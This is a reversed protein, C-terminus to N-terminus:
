NPKKLDMIVGSYTKGDQTITFKSLDDSDLNVQMKYKSLTINFNDIDQGILAGDNSKQSKILYNVASNVLGRQFEKSDLEGFTKDDIQRNYVKYHKYYTFKEKMFGLLKNEEQHLKEHFLTTKLNKYDDIEASFSGSKPSISLNVKNGIPNTHAVSGEDEEVGVSGTVGVMSGYYSAINSITLNYTSPNLASIQLVGAATIVNIKSGTGISCLYQGFANFFDDDGNPDIRWIPNGSFCSYGSQWPKVIPDVNWRRGLRSDYQWFEATYSNGAGAVEDDKEQGNFSFRYRGICTELGSNKTYVITKLTQNKEMLAPTNIKNPKEM